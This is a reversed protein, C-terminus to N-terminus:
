ACSRGRNGVVDRTRLENPWFRVRAKRVFVPGLFFFLLNPNKLPPPERGKIEFSRTSRRSEGRDCGRASRARRVHAGPLEGRRLHGLVLSALSGRSRTEKGQAAPPPGRRVHSASCTQLTARREHRVPSFRSGHPLSGAQSARRYFREPLFPPPGPPWGDDRGPRLGCVHRWVAGRVTAWPSVVHSSPQPVFGASSRPPVGGVLSGACDRPSPPMPPRGAFRLSGPGPAPQPM